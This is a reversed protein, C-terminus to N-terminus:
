SAPAGDRVAELVHRALRALRDYYARASEPLTRAALLADAHCLGLIATGRLDLRGGEGLFTHVSGAIFADLAVLDHGEVEQGYIARPFDAARHERWLQTITATMSV